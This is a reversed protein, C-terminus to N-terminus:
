GSAADPADVSSHGGEPELVFIEASLDPKQHSASLFAAVKRGTLEEVMRELREGLTAQLTPVQPPMSM